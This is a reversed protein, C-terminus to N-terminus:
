YLRQIPKQLIGMLMFLALVLFMEDVTVDQWKRIRSCFTSPTVNKAIKQQAYRNTGETIHQMLVTDFFKEFVEVVDLDSVDFQSGCIGCFTEQTASFTGIDQWLFIGSVGGMGMQEDDHTAIDGDDSDSIEHTGPLVLRTYDDDESSEENSSYASIKDDLVKNLQARQELDKLVHRRSPGAMNVIIDYGVYFSKIKKTQGTPQVM